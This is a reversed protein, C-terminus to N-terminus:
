RSNVFPPKTWLPKPRWKLFICQLMDNYLTAFELVYEYCRNYIANQSSGNATENASQDNQSPSEGGGRTAGGRGCMTHKSPTNAPLHLFGHHCQFMHNRRRADLLEQNTHHYTPNRFKDQVHSHPCNSKSRSRIRM